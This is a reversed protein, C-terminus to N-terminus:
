MTLYMGGYKILLIQQKNHKMNQLKIKITIKNNNSKSNNHSTSDNIDNNNGSNLIADSLNTEVKKKTAVFKATTSNYGRMGLTEAIKYKQKKNITITHEM